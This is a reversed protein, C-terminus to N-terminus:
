LLCPAPPPQKTNTNNNNKKNNTTTTKRPPQQLPPEAPHDSPILCLHNSSTLPLWKSHINAPPPSTPTLHTIARPM